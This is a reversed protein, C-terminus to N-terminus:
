TTPSTPAAVKPADSSKSLADFFDAFNVELAFAAVLYVDLVKGQMRTDIVSWFPAKAGSPEVITTSAFLEALLADQEDPTVKEFVDALAAGLDLDLLAKSGGKSVSGLLPAVVKGLRAVLRLARRAPLQQVEYVVGGIEKSKVHLSM